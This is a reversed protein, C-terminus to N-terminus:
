IVGDNVTVRVAIGGGSAHSTRVAIERRAGPAALGGTLAKQVLTLLTERILSVPVALSPLADGLELRFSMGRQGAEFRIVEAMEEIIANVDIWRPPTASELSSAPASRIASGARETQSGIERLARRVEGIDPNPRALMRECAYAYNAIATLPQNIGCAVQPAAAATTPRPRVTVCIELQLDTHAEPPDCFYWGLLADSSAAPSRRYDTKM